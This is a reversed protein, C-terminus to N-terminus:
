NWVEELQRWHVVAGDKEVKQMRPLTLYNLIFVINKPM